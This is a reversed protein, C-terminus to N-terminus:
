KRQGARSKVSPGDVWKSEIQVVKPFEQSGHENKQIQGVVLDVGASGVVRNNQRMGALHSIGDHWDLHVVGLDQPIRVGEAVLADYLEVKNTIVVDPKLKKIRATAKTPAHLDFPVLGLHNKAPLSRTASYFGASFKDDLLADDEVPVVLMPRQYGLEIVKQAANRATLYQDNSACNLNDKLHTVGIVSCAFNYWFKVYGEGIINPSLGAILVLGHIGRTEMIQQLREPRMDPQQLWFEEVGYGLQEARRLVGERLRRFTHNQTLDRLPSCNILGLNAQFAPQRGARLQTMLSDVVANRRYGMENAIQQIRVRTPESIRPDNRLALLVASKSVGAADAIQQMNPRRDPIEAM